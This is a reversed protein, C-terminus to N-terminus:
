HVHTHISELHKGAKVLEAEPPKKRKKARSYLYLGFYPFGAIVALSAIAHIANEPLLFLSFIIVATNWGFLLGCTERANFGRSALLHHIHTHDGRFPSCRRWIRGFVVKAMDALPVFLIAVFFVPSVFSEVKALVEGSLFVISFWALMLGMFTSGNDGMFVRAKDFNFCLFGLLAGALSIAMLAMKIEGVALFLGFFTLGGIVGLGGALGNIGDIFNYANLVAVIFLTTLLFSALLPLTDSMGPLATIRIGGYFLLSAVGIQLALRKLAPMGTLDDKVGALFLIFSGAFLCPVDQVAFGDGALFAAIWFASFIGIGGLACVKESHQKLSNNTDFLLKKKAVDIVTRTLMYSAGLSILFGFLLFIAPNM